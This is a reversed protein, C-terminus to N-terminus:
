RNGSNVNSPKPNPGVVVDRLWTNAFRGQPDFREVVELFENLRPYLREIEPRDAPSYKGWHCRANFRSGLASTLFEAFKFFGDRRKPWEYSILSIAYWEDDNGEAGPSAMSILTDDTLIRRICIPYHHYYCGRQEDPILHDLSEPLPQGAFGMITHKVFDLAPTLRSRTVFFEIEIHRFLEHQMTLMSHSDDTVHWKRIYVLPLLFRYFGSILLRVRLIKVLLFMVLHLFWDIGFHWYMRYLWALGGPPQETETRHQGYIQWSWPMLYFQQLPFSKEAALVSELSDHRRSHEQIRYAKRTEFELELVVGLLGLSCRAAQLESGERIETIAPEGTKPDYHAVRVRRVYHSLSHKGSGHTGTATAGAVSQEDILGLSPLTLGLPQLKALLHKIKCGAGVQVSGETENVQVRDLHRLDMLLGNTRIGDSWGHRSAVVRISRDRHQELLRLVEEESEPELYEAPTSSVNKGFNEIVKGTM